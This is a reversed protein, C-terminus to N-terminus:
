PQSSYVTIIEKDNATISESTMTLNTFPNLSLINYMLTLYNRINKEAKYNNLVLYFSEQHYYFKLDSMRFEEDTIVNSHDRLTDFVFEEHVKYFVQSINDYTRQQILYLNTRDQLLKFKDFKYVIFASYKIIDNLNLFHLYEMIEKSDADKHTKIFNKYETKSGFFEEIVNSLKYAYQYFPEFDTSQACFTFIHNETLYNIFLSRLRDGINEILKLKHYIRYFTFDNVQWSQESFRDLYQKFKDLAIKELESTKINWLRNENKSEWLYGILILQTQVEFNFGDFINEKIWLSIDEPEFKKLDYITSQVMVAFNRLVESEYLYNKDITEYLITYILLSSQFESLKSPHFNNLRHFLELQQGNNIIEDISFKLDKIDTITILQNFNRNLFYTPKYDIQMFRRFNNEYKISNPSAIKNEEGFLYALTKLLLEKEVDSFNFRPENSIDKPFFDNHLKYKKFNSIESVEIAALDKDNDVTKLHYYSGSKNLFNLPNAKFYDIFQPFALKLFIFNVFDSLEIEENIFPYEFIIQNCLRKVDRLNSIHDDFLVTSSSILGELEIKLSENIISSDRLTKLFQNRLITKDIEPLYIELQFFKDIFKNRLISDNSNLRSLVYGKDMAVIFITNRFNATNRILKLVQLIEEQSLRDLDDVFVIIKKDIDKLALNISQYTDYASSNTSTFEKKILNNINQDKYFNMLKNSYELILSSLKSSYPKLAHQFAHFFESSIESETHNLYPHFHVAITNNEDNFHKTLLNMFSSKGNGWPGIIGITFSCNFNQHKINEKLREVLHGYNLIDDDPSKVANDESFVLISKKENLPVVWNYAAIVLIVILPFIILTIHPLSFKYGHYLNTFEWKTPVICFFCLSSIIFLLFIFESYYILYRNKYLKRSIYICSIVTIICLASDFFINSWTKDVTLYKYILNNILDSFYVTTLFVIFFGFTKFISQYSVKDKM